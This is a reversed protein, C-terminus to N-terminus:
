PRWPHPNTHTGQWTKIVTKAQVDTIHLKKDLGTSAFRDGSPFWACSQVQLSPLYGHPDQILAIPTAGESSGQTYLTLAHITRDPHLPAELDHFLFAHIMSGEEGDWYLVQLSSVCLISDLM